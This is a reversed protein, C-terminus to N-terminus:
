IVSCVAENDLKVARLEMDKEELKIELEHIHQERERLQEQVILLLHNLDFIIFWSCHFCFFWWYSRNCLQM